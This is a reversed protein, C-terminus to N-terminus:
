NIGKTHQSRHSRSNSIVQIFKIVGFSIHVIIMVQSHVYQVYIYMISLVTIIHEAPFIKQEEFLLADEKVIKKEYQSWHKRWVKINCSHRTTILSAGWFFFNAKRKQQVAPKVCTNYSADWTQFDHSHNGICSVNVDKAILFEPKAAIIVVVIIQTASSFPNCMIDKYMIMNFSTLGDKRKSTNIRERRPFKWM